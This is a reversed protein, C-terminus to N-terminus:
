PGVASSCRFGIAADSATSTVSLLQTIREMQQNWAGGRVVLRIEDKGNWDSRACNHGTNDCQIVTGTWEWANGALDLVGDPSAGAPFSGVPKLGDVKHDTGPLNATTASLQNSDWPWPRGGLGRAAREWELETPLRWGLWACYELAQAGTVYVVPYQAFQPDDFFKPNSPTHRCGGASLCLAYEANSVEQRQILFTPVPLTQSIAEEPERNPDDTGFVMQGGALRVLSNSRQAQNRQVQLIRVLNNSNYLQVGLVVALIFTAGFLGRTLLTARREARVRAEAELARQRDSEALKKATELERQRQAERETAERERLAVGARIYDREVPGLDEGRLTLWSEAEALLAGHLLAGEDNQKSAWQVIAARSREQWSRFARDANMWESLRPWTRILAEHIVEATEKGTAPDRGTVVLRVNPRALKQVLAWADDSLEARRAVRRTDDTGEGPRVMQLLAKRALDKEAPQSLSEFVEEAHRALAGAVEGIAEYAAHSLRNSTQREWLLTLAFELLPLNGPQDGVDNLIRDVLGAEFSVGLKRAPNEIAQRLESPTMPGLMLSSDQLADAFPRHALAQGMFDARLTLVFTFSPAAQRREHQVAELLCDTFQQRLDPEPCLAYLEEFQDAFLLLRSGRGASHKEQIRVVVQELRLKGTQLADALAGSEVLRSTESMQPELLPTLAAALAHFPRDGPRFDAIIWAGEQRLGPLLGAYVISSKGSGSPGVIVAVFAQRQVAQVLRSTFEERGFFFPADQERFAFLSRYPSPLIAHQQLDPWVAILQSTPIIFAARAGAQAEAAVTMGVIGGLEEDWVPGGSFGPEVRFGTAQVEEIQVWGAAQPGRLVGLAWVGDDHMPPFGFTQFPHGWLDDAGVLRLPRTGAPPDADIQLGAIDGGGDAQAPQWSTVHGVVLHGPAVLPFDLTVESSPAVTPVELLNLARTVVHACTLIQRAGVLFGAGIVTGRATLIRVIGSSLPAIM